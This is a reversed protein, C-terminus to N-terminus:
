LWQPLQPVFQPLSREQTVPEHWHVPPRVQFPDAQVQEPPRLQFPVLQTHM